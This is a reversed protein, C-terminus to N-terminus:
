GGGDKFEFDLELFPEQALMVKERNRPILTFPVSFRANFLDIVEEWRTRETAAQKLIDKRRGESSKHSDVAESVLEESVKLYSIWLKQKFLEINQFQALL